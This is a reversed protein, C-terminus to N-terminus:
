RKLSLIFNKILSSTNGTGFIPKMNGSVYECSVELIGKDLIPRLSSVKPTWQLVSNVIDRPNVNILKNWGEKVTEVWETSERITVCPVGLIYAEKQVGGSDTITKSTNQLLQIFDIYGVPDIIRLTSCNELREYLGSEKFKKKTGPHIPYVIIRNNNSGNSSAYKESLLEFAEIISTLIKTSHTNEARHMTFLLYSKPDLHLKDLVKSEKISIKAAENVVEVSLDGTYVSKGYVHERKLNAIATKTSAFHYESLNDTLIRNIEEPMRRDFSRLGSEIHAVKIGSRVASLAGAFTSNTDGYVLVLDFRPKRNVHRTSRFQHSTDFTVDNLRDHEKYNVFVDELRKIMEGIQYGPPGSGVGLEFDPDPLNFEKFFIKSLGFDYHQGTHIIEHDVHGKLARYIPAVKIFNPRAGVVSAIKM